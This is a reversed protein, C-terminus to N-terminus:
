NEQGQERDSREPTLHESTIGFRKKIQDWEYTNYLTHPRRPFFLQETSRDREYLTFRRAYGIPNWGARRLVADATHKNYRM